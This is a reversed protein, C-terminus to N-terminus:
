QQDYGVASIRDDRALMEATICVNLKRRDEKGLGEGGKEAVMESGYFM